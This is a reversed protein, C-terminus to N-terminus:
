SPGFRIAESSLAARPPARRIGSGNGCRKRCDGIMHGFLTGTGRRRFGLEAHRVAGCSPLIGRVAVDTVVLPRGQLWRGFPTQAIRKRVSTPLTILQSSRVRSPSGSHVLGFQGGAHGSGRVQGLLAGFTRTAEMVRYKREGYRGDRIRGVAVVWRCERERCVTRRFGRTRSWTIFTILLHLRSKLPYVDTRLHM